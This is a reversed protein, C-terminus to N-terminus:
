IWLVLVADTNPGATWLNTAATKRIGGLTVAQIFGGEILILCRPWCYNHRRRRNCYYYTIRLNTCKLRRSMSSLADLLKEVTAHTNTVSTVNKGPRQRAFIPRYVCLCVVRYPNRFYTSTIPEPAMIYMGLDVFITEVM